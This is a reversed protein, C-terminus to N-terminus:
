NAVVGVPVIHIGGGVHLGVRIDAADGLNHFNDVLLYVVVETVGAGLFGRQSATYGTSAGDLNKLIVERTLVADGGFGEHVVEAVQVGGAEVAVHELVDDGGRCGLYDSGGYALVELLVVLVLFEM